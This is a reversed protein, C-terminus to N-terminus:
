IGKIVLKRGVQSGKYDWHPGKSKRVRTGGQLRIPQSKSHGILNSPQLMTM